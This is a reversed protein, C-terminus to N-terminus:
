RAGAGATGHPGAFIWMVPVGCCEATFAPHGSLVLAAVAPPWM